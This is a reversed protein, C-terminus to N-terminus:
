GSKTNYGYHQDIIWANKQIGALVMSTHRCSSLPAKVIELDRIFKWLSFDQRAPTKSNLLVARGPTQLFEQWAFCYKLSARQNRGGKASRTPLCGAKRCNTLATKLRRAALKKIKGGPPM